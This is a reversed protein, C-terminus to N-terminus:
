LWATRSVIGALLNSSHVHASPQSGSHSRSPTGTGLSGNGSVFVVASKM